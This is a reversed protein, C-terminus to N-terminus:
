SPPPKASGAPKALLQELAEVAKALQPDVVPCDDGGSTEDEAPPLRIGQRRMRQRDLRAALEKDVAVVYGEDPQVGWSETEPADQHRHIEVESPRWYSATTLRLAGLGAELDMVEQVTGKGLTRQGVIVARGHDQLCAAVIESASASHRNVLVVMPFDTWVAKGSARYERLVQGNRGRTTVIVGESIFLDCVDRAAQLLGGPNDRLDLILGRMNRVALWNLAQLLEDRTDRGFSTIRVYGIREHGELFFDWTGDAGRRDGEISPTHILERVIEVVLPKELGERQITLTVSDGPKGRLLRVAEKLTMGETSRQDIRVIRDGARLGKRAAPSGPLPFAVLLHKSQPDVLVHLGVGVFNQDLTENLQGAEEPELYASYPDGLRAIMGEMAGKFLEEAEVKHLYKREVRQMANGLIRGYRTSQVKQFCLLSVVSIALLWYLNRRPMSRVM